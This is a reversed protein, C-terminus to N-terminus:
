NNKRKSARKGSAVPGASLSSGVAAFEQTLIERTNGNAASIKRDAPGDLKCSTPHSSIKHRRTLIKTGGSSLAYFSDLPGLTRKKDKLDTSKFSWKVLTAHCQIAIEQVQVFAM